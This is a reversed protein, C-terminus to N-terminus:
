SSPICLINWALLALGITIASDAINFVPWIRFDLFDVVYGFRIRDVLNGVAGGLILGLAISLIINRLKNKCIYLIIVSIVLLSLLVFFISQNKFLGFATGKNLILTIHFINPIVMVSQSQSLGAIIISKTLRDLIYIVAAVFLAM